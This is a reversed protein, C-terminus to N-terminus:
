CLLLDVHDIQVTPSPILCIEITFKVSQFGQAWRPAIPYMSRPSSITIKILTSPRWAKRIFATFSNYYQEGTPLEGWM